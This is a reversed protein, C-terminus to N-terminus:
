PSATWSFCSELNLDSHTTVPGPVPFKPADLVYLAKSLLKLILEMEIEIFARRLGLSNEILHQGECIAERNTRRDPSM